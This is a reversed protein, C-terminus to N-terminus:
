LSQSCLRRGLNNKQQCFKAGPPKLVSNENIQQGYTLSHKWSRSAVQIGHWMAEEVTLGATTHQIKREKKLLMIKKTMSDKKHNLDKEEAAPSLKKWLGWTILDSGGSYDCWKLTLQAMYYLRILLTFDVVDNGQPKKLTLVGPSPFRPPKTLIREVVNDM